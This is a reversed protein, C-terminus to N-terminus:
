GDRGRKVGMGNVLIVMRVGLYKESGGWSEMGAAAAHFLKQITRRTECEKLRDEVENSSGRGM